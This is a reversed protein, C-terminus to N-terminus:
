FPNAAYSLLNAHIRLVQKILSHQGDNSIIHQAYARKEEEPMQKAMRAKIEALSWQNRMQVRQIRNYEPATVLILQDLQKYSGSEILLAAERLTYPATQAAHWALADEAVVPHVAENLQTLLTANTFAQKSIHTTNLQGQLDYAETGFLAIIQNKLRPELMLAKARSDADYIPIGLTAFISCVTTKGSGMNGTIGVKIM